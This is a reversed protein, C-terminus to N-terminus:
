KFSKKRPFEAKLFNEGNRLAPFKILKASAISFNIFKKTPNLDVITTLVFFFLYEIIIDFKWIETINIIYPSNM